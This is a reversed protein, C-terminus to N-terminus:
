SLHQLVRSIAPSRNSATISVAHPIDDAQISDQGTHVGTTLVLLRVFTTGYVKGEYLLASGSMGPCTSIKYTILTNVTEVTGESVVLRRRPLLKEAQEKSQDANALGRHKRLWWSNMDGPYGLVDVTSGLALSKNGIELYDPSIYGSALVAIDKHPYKLEYSYKVVTCVAAAIEENLLKDVNIEAVGPLSILFRAGSKQHNVVNHGATLLTRPGVFFATGM